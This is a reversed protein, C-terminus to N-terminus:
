IIDFEDDDFRVVFRVKYGKARLINVVYAYIKVPIRVEGREWRGITTRSFGLRKGFESQSEGLFYRALRLQESPRLNTIDNM